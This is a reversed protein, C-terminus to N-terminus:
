KFSTIEELTKNTEIYSVFQKYDCGLYIVFKNVQDDDYVDTTLSFEIKPKYFTSIYIKNKNTRIEKIDTIREIRELSSKKFNDFIETVFGIGHAEYYIGRNEDQSLKESQILDFYVKEGNEFYFILSSVGKEMIEM